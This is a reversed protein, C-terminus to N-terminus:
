KHIVLINRLLLMLIIILQDKIKLFSLLIHKIKDAIMVHIYFQNKLNGVININNKLKNVADEASNANDLVYRPIFLVHLEQLGEGPRTEPNITGNLNSEMSVVNSSCVVGADNIGDMTLNPILELQKDYKGAVLKNERLGFHTAIAISAHRNKNKNEKVHVIFEPTDNYIYDFNRGYINGCRVSSCGFAEAEDITEYNSDYRYDDYTIEHLYDAIKGQYQYMSANSCSTASAGCLCGSVLAIPSVIKSLNKNKRKM